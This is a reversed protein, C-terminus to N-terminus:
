SQPAGTAPAVNDLVPEHDLSYVRKGRFAHRIKSMSHGFELVQGFLRSTM